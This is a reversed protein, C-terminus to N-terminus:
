KFPNSAGRVEFHLHCGAAGAPITYGSHGVYGIIQGQLVREGSRVAYNALHGYYTVVGNPHLIRVYNGGVGHYGVRQITGGAAAYVLGGCTANGLDVANFPHLGQTIRYSLPVPYIFYSNAIPTLRGEPVRSPMIGGPIVLLDGVFIDENSSLSNFDVVEQLSAKYWFAIESLTDNPRVLHLVGSVPLIVLEQGPTLSSSHSLDNAWRITEASVEFKKALKEITDGSEVVYRVVEERARFDADTAGLIAGLVKPTVTLPPPNARISTKGIFVLEPTEAVVMQDTHIQILSSLNSSANMSALLSEKPLKGSGSFAKVMPGAAALVLLVGVVLSLLHVMRRSGRLSGGRNSQM